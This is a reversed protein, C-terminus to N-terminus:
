AYVQKSVAKSIPKSVAIALYFKAIDLVVFPLVAMYISDIISMGSVISFQITGLIYISLLGLTMGIIKGITSSHKKIVFGIVLAAIPFAWIYGGTPGLVIGIGGQFQAFVPIGIAGMLIYILQSIFGLKPGLILGCLGVAFLQMTFPVATFPLPISIQSMVSTLAAFLACMTVEKTSLKM